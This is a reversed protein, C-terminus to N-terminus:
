HEAPDLGTPKAYVGDLRGKAAEDATVYARVSDTLRQAIETGDKVLHEVGIEWRDCFDKVTKTLHDHGYDDTQGALKDVKTKRIANITFNVGTAADELAGLDVSFGDTM